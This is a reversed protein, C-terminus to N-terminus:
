NFRIKSYYYEFSDSFYENFSDIFKGDYKTCYISSEYDNIFISYYKTEYYIMGGFQYSNSNNLDNELKNHKKCYVYYCAGQEYYHNYRNLLDM